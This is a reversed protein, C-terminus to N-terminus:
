IREQVKEAAEQTRRKKKAEINNGKEGQGKEKGTAGPLLSALPHKQEMEDIIDM